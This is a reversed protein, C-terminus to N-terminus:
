APPPRTPMLARASHARVAGAWLGAGYAVDDLRRAALHRIPGTRSRHPLWALLGDAVALVLLGRRARRSVLAGALAVPWHHRTAARSLARAAAGTSRATLVVALAVPPRGGPRALRRSLRVARTVLVGV